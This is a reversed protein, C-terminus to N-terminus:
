MFFTKAANVINTSADVPIILPEVHIAPVLFEDATGHANASAAFRM